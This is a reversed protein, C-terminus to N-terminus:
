HAKAWNEGLGWEVTLPVELEAVGSMITALREGAQQAGDRPVEMLLEDHVQLILRADLRALEVDGAAALMAKKIIDAASGQIVSNVALRRSQQALNENRSNIDPLLRRRGFLTTVYGRQGAGEQIHEFLRSVGELKSFYIRIFEKAEKISLGTERALKQPGMGYILGFNITKARRREDSGIRDMEKELILGATRTHIDEGGTFARVLNPDGSLHALIRLEIQSYDAAVLLNGQKPVFCSRMRPGFEGRIPINQLNPESSSLRGTATNMQNFRSHLRHEQDVLRPLPELYTSRLKELSRYRLIEAVIEHQSRLGELVDSSTSPAGSPTKRVPGLGLDTFLVRAVQQSSRLNFRDGALSYVSEALQELERNVDELFARFAQMDIGVGRQQMRVLVPALPQELTRLVPLLGAQELREELDTGLRLAALGQNDRHLGLRSLHTELLRPWSTNRQDPDLLHTALCIDFIRDTDLASWSADSELLAKYSPLYVRRARSLYPALEAPTKDSLFEESDLGILVGDEDEAEALGLTAGAPDAPGSASNRVQKSAEAAEKGSGPEQTRIESLLSRLEYEQFLETLGQTDPSDARLSEAPFDALFDTRLGTLRRSLELAERNDELKKRLKDEVQDMRELLESIGGYRQLLKKATKPGIGPVGPINDSKDGTLALYDPWQGPEIGNERRFDELTTIKEEKTGPDWLVVDRDLCQLLDKDSGVIVVPHEPRVRHVLSAIYDDTEGESATYCAFGLRRVGEMIPPIQQSLSEPMLLRHAKYEPYIANRFTPEKGDLVFACYRPSERNRLRLLIRLLIFLANTPFGDSRSLEPFAYFARYIFSSGDILYVPESPWGLKERLTM